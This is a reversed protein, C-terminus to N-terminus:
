FCNKHRLVLQDLAQVGGLTPELIMAEHRTAHIICVTHVIVVVRIHLRQTVITNDVGGHEQQALKDKLLCVPPGFAAIRSSALSSSVGFRSVAREKKRSRNM